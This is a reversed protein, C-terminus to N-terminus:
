SPAGCRRHRHGEGSAAPAGDLAHNAEARRAGSARLGIAGTPQTGEDESTSRLGTEIAKGISPASASLGRAHVGVSGPQDACDRVHTSSGWVITYAAECQCEDLGISLEEGTSADVARQRTRTWKGPM